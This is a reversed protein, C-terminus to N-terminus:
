EEIKPQKTKKRTKGKAIERFNRNLKHKCNSKNLVNEKM